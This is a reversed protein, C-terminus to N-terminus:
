PSLIMKIILKIVFDCREFHFCVIIFHKEFLKVRMKDKKNNNGDRKRRSLHVGSPIHNNSKKIKILIV